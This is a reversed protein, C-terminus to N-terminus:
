LSYGTKPKRNVSVLSSLKASSLFMSFESKSSNIELVTVVSQYPRYLRFNKELHILAAVNLLLVVVAHTRALCVTLVGYAPICVRVVEM